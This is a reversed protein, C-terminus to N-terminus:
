WGEECEESEGDLYEFDTMVPSVVPKELVQPTLGVSLPPCIALQVHTWAV